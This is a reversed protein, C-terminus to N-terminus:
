HKFTLIFRKNLFEWMKMYVTYIFLLYFVWLTKLWIFQYAYFTFSQNRGDWFYINLIKHLMDSPIFKPTKYITSDM